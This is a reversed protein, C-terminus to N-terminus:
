RTGCHGRQSVVKGCGESKSRAYWEMWVCRQDNHPLVWLHLPWARKPCVGQTVHDVERWVAWPEAM